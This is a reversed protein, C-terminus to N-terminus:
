IGTVKRLVGRLPPEGKRERAQEDAGYPKRKVSVTVNKEAITTSGENRILLTRIGVEDYDDKGGPDIDVAQGNPGGNIEAMIRNGTDYNKILVSDFPQHRRYRGKDYREFDIRWEDEPALAPLEFTYPGAGTLNPDPM